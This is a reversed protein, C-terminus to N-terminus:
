APLISARSISTIGPRLSAQTERLPCCNCRGQTCLTHYIHILGQQRRASSVLNSSLELQERMQREVSNAALKPYHYYLNLAKKAL